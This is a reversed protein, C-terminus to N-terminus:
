APDEPAPPFEVIVRNGRESSEVELTGGHREVLQKTIAYGLRRQADDASLPTGDFLAADAIAGLPPGDDVVALQARGAREQTEISIARGRAQADPAIQIAGVILNLAIQALMAADGVVLPASALHTELRARRKLEYSAVPLVGAVIEALEYKGRQGEGRRALQLLEAVIVRIREIGLQAGALQERFARPQLPDRWTSRLEKVHRTVADLPRSVEHAIGGALAGLTALRAGHALEIDKRRLEATRAEVITHLEEASRELYAHSRVLRMLLIAGLAGGFATFGLPTLFPGGHVGCIVALDNVLCAGFVVFSQSVLWGSEMTRTAQLYARGLYPLASAIPLLFALGLTSIRPLLYTEGTWTAIEYGEGSFHLDPRVISVGVWVVSYPVTWRVLPHRAGAFVESFRAIGAVFPVVGILADLQWDQAVALTTAQYASAFGASLWVVGISAVGLWLHATERPRMSYIWLNFVATCLAFAASALTIGTFWDVAM